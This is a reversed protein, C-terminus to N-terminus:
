MFIDKVMRVTNGSRCTVLANEFDVTPSNCVCVVSITDVLYNVPFGRRKVMVPLADKLIHGLTAFYNAVM